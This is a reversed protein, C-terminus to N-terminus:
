APGRDQGAFLGSVAVVAQAGADQRGSAIRALLAHVARWWPDYLIMDLHEGQAMVMTEAMPAAAALAASQAAPMTRDNAIWGILLPIGATLAPADIPRLREPDFGAGIRTIARAVVALAGPLLRRLESSLEAFPSEIILARCGPLEAGALVTVGAGMSAGAAVLPLAGARARAVAWVAALDSAEKGGYTVAAPSSRGCGRLDYALVAWGAESFVRLHNLFGEKWGGLGHTFVVLGRAPGSRPRYHRAHLRVGGGGMIAIDETQCLALVARDDAASLHPRYLLPLLLAFSPWAVAILALAPLLQWPPLAHVLLQGCLAVPMLGVGCACWWQLLLRAAVPRCRYQRMLPRAPRYVLWAALMAWLALSSLFRPDPWWASPVALAGAVPCCVLFAGLASFAPIAAARRVARREPQHHDHAIVQAARPTGSTRLREGTRGAPRTRHAAGDDRSSRSCAM